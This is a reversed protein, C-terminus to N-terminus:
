SARGGAPISRRTPSRSNTRVRRSPCHHPTPTSARSTDDGAYSMVTAQPALDGAPPTASPVQHELANALAEVM